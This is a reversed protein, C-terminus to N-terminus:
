VNLLNRLKRFTKVYQPVLRNNLYKVFGIILVYISYISANEFPFM